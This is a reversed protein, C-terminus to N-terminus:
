LDHCKCTINRQWLKLLNRKGFIISVHGLVDHNQCTLGQGASGPFANAKFRAMQDPNVSNKM